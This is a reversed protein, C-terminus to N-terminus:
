AVRKRFKFLTYHPLGLYKPVNKMEECAFPLSKPLRLIKRYHRPYLPGPSSFPLPVRPYMRSRLWTLVDLRLSTFILTGAPALVRASERILESV